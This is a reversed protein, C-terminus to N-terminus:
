PTGAAGAAGMVGLLMLLLLVAPVLALANLLIGAVRLNGRAFFGAILGAVAFLAALPYTVFGGLGCALCGLVICVLALIGCILSIVGAPDSSPPAYRDDRLPLAQPHPQGGYAMSVPAGPSPGAPSAVSAASAGTPFLGKLEEVASTAAWSDFGPRWVLDSPELRGSSALRRLEEFAVPGHREPANVKAYYWPTESARGAWAADESPGALDIELVDLRPGTQGLVIRDGAKLAAPGTLRVGNLFTGNTSGQDTLVAGAGSLQVLAHRGSVTEGASGRFSLDCEPLRGISM